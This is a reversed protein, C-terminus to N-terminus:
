FLLIDFSTDYIIMIIYIKYYKCKISQCLWLAIMLPPPDEMALNPGDKNTPMNAVASSPSPTSTPGRADIQSPSPTSTPVLSPRRAEVHSSSPRVETPPPSPKPAINPPRVPM